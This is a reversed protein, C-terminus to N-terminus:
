RSRDKAAQWGARLTVVVSMFLLKVDLWPSMTKMYLTDYRLKDKPRTAYRGSVQALGTLGPRLELRRIFGPTKKEFDDTLEPREPRPGVLSLDGKWMNIVQPLEDLARARLFRGVRTVRPDDDAAWVPGTLSEANSIMSRFKFLRFVKGSRGVRLQTYFVPGRDELWIALPVLTWLLLFVPSLAVHAMILVALDFSRKYWDRRGMTVKADEAKVSEVEPEVVSKTAPLRSAMWELQPLRPL